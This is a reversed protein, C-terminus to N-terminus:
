FLDLPEPLAAVAVDHDPAADAEPPREHPEVQDVLEPQAQVRVNRALAGPQEVTDGHGVLEVQDGARGRPVPDDLQLVSPVALRAKCRSPSTPIPGVVGAKPRRREIWQAVAGSNGRAIRPSSVM